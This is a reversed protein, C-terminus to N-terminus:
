GPSQDKQTPNVEAESVVKINEIGAIFTDFSMANDITQTRKLSSFAVFASWLAPATENSPWQQRNAELEYRIIDGQIVNATYEQGYCVVELTMVAM